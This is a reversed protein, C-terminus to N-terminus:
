PSSSSISPRSKLIEYRAGAPNLNSRYLNVTDARFRRQLSPPLTRQSQSLRITGHFRGLTIHPHYLRVEPARLDSAFGCRAM